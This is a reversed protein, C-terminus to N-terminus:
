KLDSDIIDRMVKNRMEPHRVIALTLRWDPKINNPDDKGLAVRTKKMEDLLQAFEKDVWKIVGKRSKMPKVIIRKKM